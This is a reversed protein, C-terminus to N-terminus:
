QMKKDEQSVDVASPRWENDELVFIQDASTLNGFAKQIAIWLKNQHSPELVLKGDKEGLVKKPTSALPALYKGTLSGEIKERWQSVVLTAVKSIRLEPDKEAKMTDIFVSPM